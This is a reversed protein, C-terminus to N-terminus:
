TTTWGQKVSTIPYAGRGPGKAPYMVVGWGDPGEWPTNRVYVHEVHELTTVVGFEHQLEAIFASENVHGLAIYSLPVSGGEVEFIADIRGELPRTM